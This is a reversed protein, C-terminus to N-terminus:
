LELLKQRSVLIRTDFSMLLCRSEIVVLKGLIIVDRRGKGIWRELVDVKLLSSSARKDHGASNLPGGLKSAQAKTEDKAQDM